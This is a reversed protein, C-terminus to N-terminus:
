WGYVEKEHDGHHKSSLTPVSMRTGFFIGHPKFFDTREGCCYLVSFKWFSHTDADTTPRWFAAPLLNRLFTQCNKLPYFM